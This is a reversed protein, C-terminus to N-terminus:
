LHGDFDDVSQIDEIFMTGNINLMPLYYEICEKQSKVTHPGDDFIIDFGGPVVGRVEEPTDEDYADCNAYTFRDNDMIEWCKANMTEQIDLLLMKSKPLFDHWLIASCGYNTGIELVSVERDKFRTLAEVYYDCYGHWDNKDTGWGGLHKGSPSYSGQFGNMNYKEIIEVLENAM